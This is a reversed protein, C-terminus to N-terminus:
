ARRSSPTSASCSRPRGAARDFGAIWAVLLLPEVRRRRRMPGERQERLQRIRANRREEYDGMPEPRRSM